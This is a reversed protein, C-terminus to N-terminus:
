HSPPHPLSLPGLPLTEGVRVEKAAREEREMKKTIQAVFDSLPDVKGAQGALYAELVKRCNDAKALDAGTLDGYNRSFIFYALEAYHKKLALEMRTRPDLTNWEGGDLHVLARRVRPSGLWKAQLSMLEMEDLDPAFYRLADRPSVGSRIMVAFSNAQSDDPLM